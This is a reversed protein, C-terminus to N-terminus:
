GGREFVDVSFVFSLMDESSGTFSCMTVIWFIVTEIGAGQMETRYEISFLSDGYCREYDTIADSYL